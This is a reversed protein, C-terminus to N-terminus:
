SGCLTKQLVWGPLAIISVLCFAFVFGSVHGCWCVVAGVCSRPDFVESVPVPRLGM